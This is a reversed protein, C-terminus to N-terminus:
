ILPPRHFEVSTKPLLNRVIESSWVETIKESKVDKALNELTVFSGSLSTGRREFFESSSLAVAVDDTEARWEYVLAVHKSTTGGSNAYVAGLLVLETPEMSLRLEERLERLVCQVISSGNAGDEKRVHGGAWIVIKEHLPNDASRERRRLRLVDGSKNRVIVIPLAQLVTLDQEVDHRPRFRGRETFSKM